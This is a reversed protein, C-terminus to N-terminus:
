VGQLLFHPMRWVTVYLIFILHSLCVNPDKTQLQNTILARGSRVACLGVEKVLHEAVLYSQTRM